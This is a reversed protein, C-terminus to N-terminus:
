PSMINTKALKAFFAEIKLPDKKGALQELSSCLDLGLIREPSEQQWGRYRELNEQDVGGALILKASTKIFAEKLFSESFAKGSAAGDLLLIECSALKEWAIDEGTDRLALILKKDTRAKLELYAGLDLLGGHLQAAGLGTEALVALIQATHHGRFVGVTLYEGGALGALIERCAVPSLYRPSEPAFIFGLAGAGAQLALQADALSTIGCVKVLM